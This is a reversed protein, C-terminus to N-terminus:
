WNLHRQYCQSCSVNVCYVELVLTQYLLNFSRGVVDSHYQGFDWSSQKEELEGSICRNTDGYGMPSVQFFCKPGTDPRFSGAYPHDREGRMGRETDRYNYRGFKLFLFCFSYILFGCTCLWLTSNFDYTNFEDTCGTLM